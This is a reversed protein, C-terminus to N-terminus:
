KGRRGEYALLMSVFMGLFVFGLVVEVIVYAKAKWDKPVIKGFTLTTSTTISFYLPEFWNEPSGSETKWDMEPAVCDIISSVPKFGKIAEPVPFGAFIYGFTFWMLLIMTALRQFSRGYGSLWYYIGSFFKGSRKIREIREQEVIFDLFNDDVGALEELNHSVGCISTGRKIGILKMLHGFTPEENFRIENVEAFTLICGHITANAIDLSQLTAGAFSVNKMRAGKFCAFSLKASEFQVDELIAYRFDSGTTISNSLNVRRIASYAFSTESLESSNSLDVDELTIGRLDRPAADPGDQKRVHGDDVL